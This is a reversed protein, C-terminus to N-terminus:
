RIISITLLSLHLFQESECACSFEVPKGTELSENVAKTSREPGRRACETWKNCNCGCRFETAEVAFSVFKFPALFLEPGAAELKPSGKQRNGQRPSEIEEAIDQKFKTSKDM